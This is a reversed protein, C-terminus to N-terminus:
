SAAGVPVKDRDAGLFPGQKVSLCQMDEIVRVSHAGRMIVIADGVGLEVSALRRGAADHFIVELRGRQVVVFQQVDLIRREVCPHVHPAEVFGAEHALLGLQFSETPSSVFTSVPVRASARIVQAMRQGGCEVVEVGTVTASPASMCRIISAAIPAM